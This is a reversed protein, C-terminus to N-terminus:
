ENSESEARKVLSWTEQVGGTRGRGLNRATILIAELAIRSGYVVVASMSIAFSAQAVRCFSQNQTHAYSCSRVLYWPRPSPHEPDSDDASSQGVVSFTWLCCCLMDYFISVSRPLYDLRSTIHRVLFVALSLIAEALNSNTLRSVPHGPLYVGLVCKETLESRVSPLKQSYFSWNSLSDLACLIIHKTDPSPSVIQIISPLFFSTPTFCVAPVL